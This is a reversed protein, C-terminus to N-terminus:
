CSCSLTEGSDHGNRFLENVCGRGDNGHVNKKFMHERLMIIDVSLEM